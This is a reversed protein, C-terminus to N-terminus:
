SQSSFSYSSKHFTSHSLQSLQYQPISYTFHILGCTNYILTINLCSVSGALLCLFFSLFPGWNIYYKPLSSYRNILLSLYIFITRSKGGDYPCNLYLSQTDAIYVSQCFSLPWKAKSISFKFSLVQVQSQCDLIM